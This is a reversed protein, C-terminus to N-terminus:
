RMTKWMSMMSFVLLHNIQIFGMASDRLKQTNEKLRIFFKERAADDVFVPLMYTKGVLTNEFVSFVDNRDSDEISKLILNKTTLIEKRKLM